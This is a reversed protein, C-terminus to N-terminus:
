AAQADPSEELKMARAELTGIFEQLPAQLTGVFQVMPAILIGVFWAQLQDRTPLLALAKIEDPSIRQKDFFGSIVRFRENSAAFDHAAKTGVVADQKSFIFAVQGALDDDLTDIGMENLAVRALTNKVVSVQGGAERLKRRLREMEKVTLGKYEALVIAKSEEVLAKFDSIKESKTQRSTKM